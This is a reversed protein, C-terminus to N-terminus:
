RPGAVMAIEQAIGPVHGLFEVTFGHAGALESLTAKPLRFQKLGTRRAYPHAADSSYFKITFYFRGFPIGALDAFIGAIAEPPLHLFVSHAWVYDFHGVINAINATKLVHLGGDTIAFYPANTGWGESEALDMAHAIAGSSIDVGVYRDRCLYPVVKRALRGTGCGIELLRHDPMLGVSQLFALQSDGYSEWEDLGPRVNAGIAGHPSDEVIRRNTHEAYASIYDRSRYLEVISPDRSSKDTLGVPEPLFIKM